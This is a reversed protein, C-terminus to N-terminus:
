SSNKAGIKRIFKGTFSPESVFETRFNLYHIDNFGLFDEIIVTGDIFRILLTM